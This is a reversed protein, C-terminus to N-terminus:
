SRKICFKVDSCTVVKVIGDESKLSRFEIKEENFLKNTTIFVIDHLNEDEEIIGLVTENLQFQPTGSNTYMEKEERLEKINIVKNRLLEIVIERFIEVTPILQSLLSRDELVIENIEKLSITGKPYTLQLILKLSERYRSFKEKRLRLQEAAWEEEDFSLMEESEEVDKKKITRQYQLCKNINYYKKGQKKFLPKILLYMDELKTIDKLVKDYLEARINFRKVLSMQSLDELEKAYIVKLDFHALLIKQQEEITKSLYSEIIRLYNLNKSEEKSLKKINVNKEEYETILNNIHKKYNDFKNKTTDLSKLNEEMLAKYEHVSYSLVNQKIRLIAEQMKQLQIRLENFITKIEDVAKDYSQKDLHMQFIFEHITLRMNAEMELTSLILSYGDNSLKYSTRRVSDDLYIIENTLFSINIEEYAGNEFNFGNFYMASGNDYLVTNIIFDALEKCEVYSLPKKVYSMNINDIFSGVDDLTCAEEKLSKEMIYLLVAFIMNTQEDFEEFGYKKWTTKQISNKYLLAYSGVRKMRQNFKLLFDFEM